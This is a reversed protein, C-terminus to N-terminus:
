HKVKGGGEFHRGKTETNTQKDGGVLILRKINKKRERERERGGGPRESAFNLAVGGGRCATSFETM